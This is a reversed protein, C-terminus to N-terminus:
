VRHALAVFTDKLRELASNTYILSITELRSLKKLRCHKEVFILIYIEKQSRMCINSNESCKKTSHIYILAVLHRRKLPGASM